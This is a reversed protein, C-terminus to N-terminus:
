KDTKDPVPLTASQSETYQITQEIQRYVPMSIKKGYAQLVIQLKKIAIAKKFLTLANKAFAIGEDSPKRGTYPDKYNKDKALELYKELGKVFRIDAFINTPDKWGEFGVIDEEKDHSRSLADGMDIPKYSFDYFGTGAVGKKYAFLPGKKTISGEGAYLGHRTVESVIDNQRVEWDNKVNVFNLQGEDNMQFYTYKVGKGDPGFGASYQKYFDRTNHMKNMEAESRKRFDEAIAKHFVTGDKNLIVTFHIYELGDQDIGSIPNNGAFQYPTLEPYKATIPDVSLFKVLRPDYIRLGYDQQNGEGKIDNDNEKGNFGYRYKSSSATYKRGAMLM